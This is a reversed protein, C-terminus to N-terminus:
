TALEKAVEAGEETIQMDTGASTIYEALGQKMLLQGSRTHSGVHVYGRPHVSAQVLLRGAVTGKLNATKARV